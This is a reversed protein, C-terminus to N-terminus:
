VTKQNEILYLRRIGRNEISVKVADTYYEKPLRDPWEVLRCVPESLMESIGAEDAESANELRYLDFHFVEDGAGTRYQNVLSYTPSQVTGAYGAAIMLAKVLTTKGSGPEGELLLVRGANVFPLLTSVVSLLEEEGAEIEIRM